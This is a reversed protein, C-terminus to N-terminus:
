RIIVKRTITENENSIQIIYLGKEFSKTSITLNNTNAIGDYVVTGIVSIMKVSAGIYNNDLQVNVFLSAPNPSININATQSENIGKKVEFTFSYTKKTVGDEATVELTTTGNLDTAKTTKITANDDEKTGGITPVQTTGAPLEVVYTTVDKNFPTKLNGNSLSVKTLNANNSKAVEFIISYTKKTTGDEATVVITTTGSLSSAKTVVKSAKTDTLTGDIDPVVTTGAPLNVKYSTVDSSFSPSLTGNSVTISNLTAINSKAVTFGVKYTLKTTGDAATVVIVASDSLSAPQTVVANANPDTTTATVTPVTTSGFPLEFGYKYINKNFGTVATTGVKIGSLTADTAPAVTFNITYTLTTEGDEATVVVTTAGPLTSPNTVVATAGAHTTTATVTPAATTGSPLIMAYILTDKNFGTITTGGVKLDSLTADIAKVAITLENSVIGSADVASAKVKVNGSAIGQLLGTGSITAIDQNDVSWLVEKASAEDPAITATMQLTKGVKVSTANGASVITIGTVPIQNSIIVITDKTVGSGDAATATITVTGNSRATLTATLNGTKVIKALKTDNVSWNVEKIAANSPSVTATLTKTGGSTTITNNTAPTITIGSVAVQGSIQISDRKFVGSGDIATAKIYAWGNKRATVVGTASITAIDPNEVSWVIGKNAADAPLVTATVTLTGGSTTITGTLKDLTISEVLKQNVITIKKTAVLPPNIERDNLTATVTVEGNKLPTILGITNITAITADSIKWTVARTVTTDNPTTITNLKLTKGSETISDSGVISLATAHVTVIPQDPIAIGALSYIANRWLTLNADTMNQGKDACIAGFNQGFAIIRAQTTIGVVSQTFNGGIVTGAPIDNIFVKQTTDAPNLTAFVGMKALLTNKDSLYVNAGFNLAKWRMGSTNVDYYMQGNDATLTNFLCVSDGKLSIGKFLENTPSLVKMYAKWINDYNANNYQTNYETGAGTSSAPFARSPQLAYTKNYLTPKTLKSIALKGSPTLIFDGGGFSEQIVIIDLTDLNFNPVPDATASGVNTIPIVYVKFNNDAKLMQIIPDGYVSTASTDMTKVKTFYGIKKQANISVCFAFILTITLLKKIYNLKRM